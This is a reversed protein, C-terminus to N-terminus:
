TMEGKLHECVTETPESLNDSIDMMNDFDTQQDVSDFLIGVDFLIGFPILQANIPLLKM